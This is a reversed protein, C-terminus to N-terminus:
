YWWRLCVLVAGRSRGAPPFCPVNSKPQCNKRTSSRPLDRRRRQRHLTQLGTKRGSRHSLLDPAMFVGFQAVVDTASPLFGHMWPSPHEKLFQRASFPAAASNPRFSLGLVILRGDGYRDHLEALTPVDAVYAKSDSSWFALLVYRGRLQSLKKREGTFDDFDFEPFMEGPKPGGPGELEIQGLDLTGAAVDPAAVRVPVFQRVWRNKVPSAVPWGPSQPTLILDYEGAPVGSILFSGDRALEVM